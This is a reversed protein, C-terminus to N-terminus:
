GSGGFAHVLVTHVVIMAFLGGVLPVHVLLWHKLLWQLTFQTDLENKRRVCQRLEALVEREAPGLYRDAADLQQEVRHLPRQSGILHHFIAQPAGFWKALHEAYLPGLMTSPAERAAELVLSEADERLRRRMAPIREFLLADGRTALRLPILRSLALGAAGTLAVAFFMGALLTEFGGTPWRLGTHAFFLAVALWGAWAHVQMWTSANGLPVSFLRRRAGFLALGVCVAALAWGSAFSAGVLSADLATVAAFAVATAVLLASGGRVRRAAFSRM